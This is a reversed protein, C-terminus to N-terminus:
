KDTEPKYEEIEVLKKKIYSTVEDSNMCVQKELGISVIFIRQNELWEISFNMYREKENM